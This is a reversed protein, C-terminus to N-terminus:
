RGWIKFEGRRVAYVTPGEEPSYIGNCTADASRAMSMGEAAAAPLTPNAPAFSFCRLLSEDSSDSSSSSAEDPHRHRSAGGGGGGQERRRVRGLLFRHPGDRWVARCELEEASIFFFM